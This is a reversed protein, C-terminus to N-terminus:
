SKKRHAKNYDRIKTHYAPNLKGSADKFYAEGYNCTIEDGKPIGFLTQLVLAYRGYTPCICMSKLGATLVSFQAHADCSHNCWRALGDQPDNSDIVVSKGTKPDKIGIRYDHLYSGPPVQVGTYFAIFRNPPIYQKAFLGKGARPIRSEKVECVDDM